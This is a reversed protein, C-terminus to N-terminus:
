KLKWKIFERIGFDFDTAPSYELLKRAKTTDANTTNVDGQQFPLHIKKATKNLMKELTIIMTILSVPKGGGLNIIEYGKLKKTSRIIGDVIDDIYTYDRSSNGDGYIEIPQNNLILDTFKHIALDPRQRPGYVTFFRLCFIDFKFLHYYTHCLLEAAKKTAAYPSVPYDVNNNESFPVQPNNGYVSSSSAFIMKKVNYSRMAELINITGMVNTDFYGPPDAISPRVGAKAALHIVMDIGQTKFITDIFAKDRIDGEILKYGPHKLAIKINDRKITEYYFPDFNDLCIVLFGLNLLRDSLNSGIFGAGGTVLIVSGPKLKNDM